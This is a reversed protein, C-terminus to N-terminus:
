NAALFARAARQAEAIAATTMEAAIEGRMRMADPAGRAAAINFFKHAGVLDVAGSRGAACQIGLDYFMEATFARGAMVAMDPSAIEFRAM